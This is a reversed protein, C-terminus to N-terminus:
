VTNKTTGFLTEQAKFIHEYEDIMMLVVHQLAPVEQVVMAVCQSPQIISTALAAALDKGTIVNFESAQIVHLHGILFKLTTYNTTPLKRVCYRVQLRREYYNKITGIKVVKDYMCFPILSEPLMELFRRVVLTLDKLKYESYDPTRETDFQFIM